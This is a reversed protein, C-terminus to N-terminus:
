GAGMRLNEQRAIADAIDRRLFDFVVTEQGAPHRHVVQAWFFDGDKGFPDPAMRAFHFGEGM